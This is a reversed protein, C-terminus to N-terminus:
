RSGKRVESIGRYAFIDDIKGISLMMSGLETLRDLLTADPLPM